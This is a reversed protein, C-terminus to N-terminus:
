TKAPVLILSLSGEDHRRVCREIAFETHAQDPSPLPGENAAHVGRGGNEIVAGNQYGAGQGGIRGLGFGGGRVVVDLGLPSIARECLHDSAFRLQRSGLSDVEDGDGGGIVRVEFDGLGKGLGAEVDHAVLRHSKVEGLGLLQGLDHLFRPDHERERMIVGAM